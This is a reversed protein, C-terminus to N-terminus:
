NSEISFDPESAAREKYCKSCLPEGLVSQKVKVVRGCNSCKTGKAPKKIM